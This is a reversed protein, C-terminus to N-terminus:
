FPVEEDSFLENESEQGRVGGKKSTVTNCGVYVNTSVASKSTNCPHLLGAEPPLYRSWADLFWERQYGRAVNTSFRVARPEIEFDKLLKALGAQSLPKGHNCEAWPSDEVALKRILDESRLRESDEDVGDAFIRRIDALLEVKKSRDKAAPSAFIQTLADRSRAPWTGGLLDAIALLPESIDRQRDLFAEPCPPEANALAKLNENAWAGARKKVDELQRRLVKAAEGMGDPRFSERQGHPVRKLRIVISRDKVTDQLFDGIGAIAKPCFTPFHKVEDNNKGGCRTYSGNVKFGGNLLGTILNVMEKDGKLLRDVEDLLLTPQEQKVIRALAAPSINDTKQAQRVVCELVDLVRSKGCGKEASTILLYPTFSGVGFFAHTHLTWLALVTLEAEGASIFRRFLVLLDDAITM